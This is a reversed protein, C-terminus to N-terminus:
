RVSIRAYAIDTYDQHNGTYFVVLVDGNPLRIADPLGISYASMEAWADQMSNKHWTQNHVPREHVLLDHATPWTKGGDTSLRAKIQPTSTRDVHVMVWTDRDVAAIRAPQGPVGTDVLDGWSRGSDTSSRSHINLYKGAQQDYTWFVAVLKEGAVAVRQDWCFIRRNPDTHIDIAESWTKGEDTSRVIVSAHQWPAPEDYHKNVEFQTAWAGDPTMLTAGTSPTPVHNYKGCHVPFPKGFTHGSDESIASFLKMDMLGETAENFFPRLPDRANEACLSALVRKGGLPTFAVTRWTFPQGDIALPPAVEVPDSWSAGNDDSHSMLARQTRSMKAPGGRFGVLWRGSPLVCVTPFACSAMDTKPRSAVATGAAIIQM